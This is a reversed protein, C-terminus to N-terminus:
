NINSRVVGKIYKMADTANVKNQRILLRVDDMEKWIIHKIDESLRNDVMLQTELTETYRSLRMVEVITSEYEISNGSSSTNVQTHEKGGIFYDFRRRM